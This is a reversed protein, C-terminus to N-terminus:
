GALPCHHHVTGVFLSWDFRAMEFCFSLNLVRCVGHVIDLIYKVNSVKSNSEKFVLLDRKTASVKGLSFNTLEHTSVGDM